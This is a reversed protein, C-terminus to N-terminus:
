NVRDRTWREHPLGNKSHEANAEAKNANRQDSQAPSITISKEEADSSKCWKHWIQRYNCELQRTYTLGDTVPSKALRDRLTSRLQVLRPLDKALEVASQVYSEPSQAILDQLDMCLLLGAGRRSQFANGELTVVPVGMWMADCTTTDGNYPFTDLVIDVHNFQAMYKPRSLRPVLDLQGEDIGRDSFRQLLYQNEEGRAEALVTLKSGPTAHLIKAWLEIAQDTIKITRNPSCFTVFGAQLAPPPNVDPCISDPEYVWATPQYLLRETYYSESTGPPDGYADTIRYDMATLGTTGAYALQVQIPAPKLAFLGLHNGGMHGTLDVLIDIRDSLVIEAIQPESKFAIERWHDSLGKLRTTTQDPEQVSSYCFVEIQQRDHARLVPGIVRAITHDRFDGSVYGLRLRRAPDRDNRYKPYSHTEKHRAWRRCQELMSQHTTNFDHLMAFILDSAARGDHPALEVAERYSTLAYDLRCQRWYSLGLNQHASACAPDLSISRQLYTNAESYRGSELFARGLCHYAPAAPKIQVFRRAWVLAEDTQRSRELAVVLHEVVQELPMGLEIANRHAQAAQKWRRLKGLLIGRRHHAKADVDHNAIAHEIATLAEDFEGQQELAASLNSWAESYTPRLQVARRFAKIASKRDGSTALAIGLSNHFDPVDGKKGIAQHILDIALGLRKCRFQLM